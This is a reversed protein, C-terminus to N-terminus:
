APSASSMSRLRRSLEAALSRYLAAAVGPRERFLENIQRETMTLVTAESTTVVDASAATIEVFSMEGFVDGEGLRALATGDSRRVEATGSLLVHLACPRTGRTVLATAAAHKRVDGLALCDAREDHSLFEFFRKEM